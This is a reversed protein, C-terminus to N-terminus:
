WLQYGQFNKLVRIKTMSFWQVIINQWMIILSMNFMNKFVNCTNCFLWWIQYGINQVLSIIAIIDRMRGLSIITDNTRQDVTLWFRQSCPAARVMHTQKVLTRFKVRGITQSSYFHCDSLHFVLLVQGVSSQTNRIKVYTANAKYIKSLHITCESLHNKCDVQGVSLHM